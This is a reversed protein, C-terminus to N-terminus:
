FYLNKRDSPFSTGIKLFNPRCLFDYQLTLRFVQSTKSPHIIWTAHFISNSQPVFHCKYLEIFIYWTSIHIAVFNGLLRINMFIRLRIIIKVLQINKDKFSFIHKKFIKNLIIIYIDECTNIRFNASNIHNIHIIIIIELLLLIIDIKGGRYVKRANTALLTYDNVFVCLRTYM